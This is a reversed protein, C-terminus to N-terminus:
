CHWSYGIEGYHSIGAEHVVYQTQKMVATSQQVMDPLVQVLPYQHCCCEEKRESMLARYEAGNMQRYASTNVARYELAFMQISDHHRFHYKDSFNRHLQFINKYKPSKRVNGTSTRKEVQKMAVCSRDRNHLGAHCGGVRWGTLAPGVESTCVCICSPSASLSLDRLKQCIAKADVKFRSDM